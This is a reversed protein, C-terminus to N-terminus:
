PQKSSRLPIEDIRKVAKKGWDYQEEDSFPEELWTDAAERDTFAIVIAEDSLDYSEQNDIVGVLICGAM